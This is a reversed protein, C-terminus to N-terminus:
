REVGNENLVRGVTYKVPTVEAKSNMVSAMAHSLFQVTEWRLARLVIPDNDVPLKTNLLLGQVVLNGGRKVPIVAWFGQYLRMFDSDGLKAMHWPSCLIPSTEALPAVQRLMLVTFREKSVGTDIELGILKQGPFVALLASDTYGPHIHGYNEAQHLVAIIKKTDLGASPPVYAYAYQHVTDPSAGKVPHFRINEFMRFRVPYAGDVPKLLDGISQLDELVLRVEEESYSFIVPIDIPDPGLDLDQPLSPLSPKVVTPIDQAPPTSRGCGSLFTFALALPRVCNLFKSSTVNLTIPKPLGQAQSHTPAVSFTSPLALRSISM